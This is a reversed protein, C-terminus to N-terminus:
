QAPTTKADEGSDKEAQQRQYLKNAEQLTYQRVAQADDESLYKAFSVMGLPSLVGKLVIDNWIEHTAESSYRLDPTVGGSITGDGHCYSCQRQYIRQGREIIEQSASVSQPKQVTRDITPAPPLKAQGGLKFVLVRSINPIEWGNSVTGAEAALGGGFGVAVAIYQQGDLAYTIPPAMALTQTEFQWLTVGNRADYAKFQGYGNGQFVLGGATSLVGGNAPRGLPGTWFAKQKVPDWAVLAGTVIQDFLANLDPVDPPLNAMRDLGVNWYGHGYENDMAQDSAKFQIPVNMMPIYVLGTQANYSMPHWNHGGANSPQTVNEGDFLRANPTEIPRGTQMDIGSAWTTKTYANASLLEGTLRDIVYFFGNKPAQMIVKRQKGDLELDALIMHQTATYDWTDGPTTQYHWVYEGTKGRVAVISALFLNDGGEPSRIKQNWPSGNGVGLYLLDTEQDYVMSDWVTGGGGWQWWKGNWTKAAMELEPSEFGEQPNGPITYFRWIQKGTNIDYATVYGRVGLESGGNGIVVLDGVIRPAGTITYPKDRDTTQVDWVVVGSEANLAVLRGDYTGVIVKGKAYAVGRNVADCCGKALFSRDVEPNYFWKLGGNRADLAYVMSWSGSVYLTDNIMLPTAEVGRKTYMNFHWALGLKGVNSRNIQALGSFRQEGADNGHLQWETDAPPPVEKEEALVVTAQLLSLSVGLVASTIASMPKNM